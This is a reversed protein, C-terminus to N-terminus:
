NQFLNMSEIIEFLAKTDVEEQEVLKVKYGDNTPWTMGDACRQIPGFDSGVVGDIWLQNLNKLKRLSECGFSFTNWQFHLVELNILNGLEKEVHEARNGDLYLKKLKKLRGVANPVIQIRNGSLDLIELNQLEAIWDPIDEIFRCNKLSEYFPPQIGSRSKAFRLVKLQTLHRLQIPMEKCNHWSLDLEELNLLTDKDRPLGVWFGEQFPEEDREPVDDGEVYQLESINNDEAWQFLESIWSEDLDLEAQKDM